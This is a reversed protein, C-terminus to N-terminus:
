PKDCPLKERALLDAISHIRLKPDTYVPTSVLIDDYARRQKRTAITYRHVIYEVGDRELRELERRLPVRGCQLRRPKKGELAGLLRSGRIYRMAAKPTRAVMGGVLPRGHTTQSLMAAKAGQRTLPLDLIAGSGPREALDRFFSPQRLSLMPHPISLYDILVLPVFAWSLHQRRGLLARISAYGYAAVIALFARAVLNFREPMRVAKIARVDDLWAYPLPINTRHGLVQLTSGM